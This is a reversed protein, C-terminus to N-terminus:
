RLDLAPPTHQCQKSVQTSQGKALRASHEAATQLLGDRVLAVALGEAHESGLIECLLMLLSLAKGMYRPAQSGPLVIALRPWRVHTSLVSTALKMHFADQLAVQSGM